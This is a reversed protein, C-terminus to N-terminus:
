RQLPSNEVAESYVARCVDSLYGDVELHEMFRDSEGPRGSAVVKALSATKAATARREWECSEAASSSGPKLLRKLPLSRDPQSPFGLNQDTFSPAIVPCVVSVFLVSPFVKRIQRSPVTSSKSSRRENLIM